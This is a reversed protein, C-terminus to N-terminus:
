KRKKLHIIITDIKYSIPINHSNPWSICVYFHTISYWIVTCMGYLFEVERLAVKGRNESMKNAALSRCGWFFEVFYMLLWFTSSKMKLNLATDLYSSLVAYFYLICHVKLKHSLSLKLYPSSISFKLIIIRWKLFHLM